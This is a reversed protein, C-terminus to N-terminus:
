ASAEQPLFLNLDNTQIKKTFRKRKLTCLKQFIQLLEECHDTIVTPNKREWENCKDDHCKFRVRGRRLEVMIFCHNSVHEYRFTGQHLTRIALSVCVKSHTQINIKDQFMNYGFFSSQGNTSRNFKFQVASKLRGNTIQHFMDQTKSFAINFADNVLEVLSTQVDEIPVKPTATVFSEIHQRKLGVNCGEVCLVENRMEKWRRKGSNQIIKERQEETFYAPSRLQEYYGTWTPELERDIETEVEKQWLAERHSVLDSTSHPYEDRNILKMYFVSTIGNTLCTSEGVIDSACSSVMTHIFERTTTPDNMVVSSKPFLAQIRRGVLTDVTKYRKQGYKTCGAARFNRNKTYVGLDVIFTYMDDSVIESLDLSQGEQKRSDLKKESHEGHWYYPNRSPVGRLLRIYIDFNRVLAGVNYQNVFAHDKIDVILHFSVKERSHSSFVHIQLMDHAIGYIYCMFEIFDKILGVVRDNYTTGKERKTGSCPVPKCGFVSDKPWEIDLYLKCLGHVIEYYNCHKQQGMRKANRIKTFLTNYSSVMFTKAGKNPAGPIDKSFCPVRSKDRYVYAESIKRFTRQVFQDHSHVFPLDCETAANANEKGTDTEKDSQKDKNDEYLVVIEGKAKFNRIHENELFSGSDSQTQTEEDSDM